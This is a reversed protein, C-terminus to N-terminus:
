HRTSKHNHSPVADAFPLLLDANQILRYTDFTITPRGLTFLIDFVDSEIICLRPPENILVESPIFIVVLSM